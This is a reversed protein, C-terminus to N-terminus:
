ASARIRGAAGLFSVRPRRIETFSCFYLNGCRDITIGALPPVRAVDEVSAAVEAKSLTEDRLVKTEIRRM